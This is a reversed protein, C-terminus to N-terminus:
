ESFPLPQCPSPSHMVHPRGLIAIRWNKQSCFKEFYDDFENIEKVASSDQPDVQQCCYNNVGWWMLAGCDSLDLNYLGLDSPQLDM